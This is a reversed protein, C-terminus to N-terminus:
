GPDYKSMIKLVSHPNRVERPCPVERRELRRTPPATGSEMSHQTSVQMWFGQTSGIQHVQFSIWRWKTRWQEWRVWSKGETDVWLIMDSLFKSDVWRKSNSDNEDRGERQPGPGLQVPGRLEEEWIGGSSCSCSPSAFKERSPKSHRRKPWYWLELFVYM